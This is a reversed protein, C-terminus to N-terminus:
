KIFGQIQNIRQAWSNKQAFENIESDDVKNKLAIEINKIFEEKSKSTYVYPMGHMEKLDTTVVPKGMALYEFVKLPSITHTLNNVFFPIITIDIYKLYAPLDKQAKLGLFHINEPPSQCQGHYDGIAVVSAAPYALAISKFLEWDFWSGWLSGIYCIIFDGGPMDEPRQYNKTRDFLHLNVANPVLKVERGTTKELNEKLDKASAILIDSQMAINNEIEPSYWDGGLSTSWDDILDFIIKANKEKLKQIIPIFERLPFELIVITKEILVSHEELYREPNFKNLEYIDLLSYDISFSVSVKKTEYSPYKHVFTVKYNKMLFEIAIQTGRQGGGSDHFPVGALILVNGAVNNYRQELKKPKNKKGASYGRILGLRIVFTLFSNQINRYFSAADKFNYSPNKWIFFYFVIGCLIIPLIPNIYYSIIIFAFFLTISLFFYKLYDYSQAFLGAEGDGKAYKFALKYAQSINKPTNWYVSAEPVFVWAQTIKGLNLDFLTDEGAFTLWEPYGRIKEHISKKYAISRSSPLFKRIELYELFPVFFHSIMEQFKTDYKAYYFGAVVDVKLDIEFPKVIKELWKVDLICGADTSAIIEYKAKKIGINRGRAINLNACEILIIKLKTNQIYKKLIDLTKDTSGGDVIIFEDPLRSQNEVSDLWNILNKEENKITSILSVKQDFQKKIYLPNIRNHYAPFLSDNETCLLYDIEPYLNAPNSVLKESLQHYRRLLYNWLSNKLDKYYKM